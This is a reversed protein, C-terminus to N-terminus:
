PEEGAAQESIPPALGGLVVELTFESVPGSAGPWRRAAAAGEHQRSRVLRAHTHPMSRLRHLYSSLPQIGQAVGLLTVEMAPAKARLKLGRLTAQEPLASGLASLAQAARTRSRSAQQVRALQGNLTRLTERREVLQATTRESQEARQAQRAELTGVHWEAGTLLALALLLPTLLLVLRRGLLLRARGQRARERESESLLDVQPLGRFLEATVLGLAPMQESTLPTRGPLEPPEAMTLHPEAGDAEAGDAEANPTAELGAAKPDTAESGLAERTQRLQGKTMGQSRATQFAAQAASLSRVEREMYVPLGSAYATVYGEEPLWIADGCAAGGLSLGYGVALPLSHLSLPEFGCERLLEAHQTTADRRAAAIWTFPAGAASEVPACRFRYADLDIHPFHEKIRAAMWREAERDQAPPSGPCRVHRILDAPLHATVYCPAGERSSLCQLAERLSGTRRIERVTHVRLRSGARWLRVLRVADLGTHLAAASGARIM